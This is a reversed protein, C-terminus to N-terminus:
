ITKKTKIWMFSTERPYNLIFWPHIQYAEAWAPVVYMPHVFETSVNGKTFDHGSIIGGVKVKKSWEAIDNAVFQFRHDGDIFVFDLSEDPFERVADLSWKRIIINNKYQLLKDKAIEYMIEYHKDKRFNKYIPYSKWADISYIKAEPLERCLIESFNGQAVGIEAGSKFNLEKFIKPLDTLRNLNLNFPSKKRLDIDYKKIIYDLTDM